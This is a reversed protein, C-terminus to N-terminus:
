TEASRHRSLFHPRLNQSHLLCGNLSYHIFINIFCNKSLSM